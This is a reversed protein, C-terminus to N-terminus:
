TIGELSTEILSTDFILLKGQENYFITNDYLLDQNDLKKSFNYNDLYYDVWYESNEGFVQLKFNFVQNLLSNRPISGLNRFKLRYVGQGSLGQYSLDKLYSNIVRLSIVSKEEFFTPHKKFIVQDPEEILIAGNEYMVKHNGSSYTSIYSLSNLDFIWIRGFPTYGITPYYYEDLQETFIVKSSNFLDIRFNGKLLDRYEIKNDETVLVTEKISGDVPADNWRRVDVTTVNKAINGHIDETIIKLDYTGSYDYQYYFSEEPDSSVNYTSDYDAYEDNWAIIYRFKDGDADSANLTVKCQSGSFFIEVKTDAKSPPSNDNYIFRCNFLFNGSLRYLPMSSGLDTGNFSTENLCYQKSELDWKYYESYKNGGSTNLVLFYEEAPFLEVPTSLTHEISQMSNSISDASIAEQILLNNLDPLNSDNKYISLYLDEQINGYRSITMDVKTLNWNEPPRFKQACVYEGYIQRYEQDPANFFWSEEQMSLLYINAYDAEIPLTVDVMDITFNSGDDELGSINFDYDPHFSYYVILKDSSEAIGISSMDNYSTVIASKRTGYGQLILDDISSDINDYNSHVSQIQSQKEKEDMYPIGWALIAAVTAMVISIVLITSVVESVAYTNLNRKRM